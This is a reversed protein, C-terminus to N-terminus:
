NSRFARSNSKSEGDFPFGKYVKDFHRHYAKAAEVVSSGSCPKGKRDDDETAGVM